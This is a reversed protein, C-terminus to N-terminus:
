SDFTFDRFAAVEMFSATWSWVCNAISEVSSPDSREVLKESLDSEAVADPSTLRSSAMSVLHCACTAGDYM